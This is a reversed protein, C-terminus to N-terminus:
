RDPAGANHDDPEWPREFKVVAPRQEYCAPTGTTTLTTLGGSGGGGSAEGSLVLCFSAAGLRHAKAAAPM